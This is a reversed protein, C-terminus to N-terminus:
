SGYQKMYFIIIILKEDNREIERWNINLNEQIWGIKESATQDIKKIKIFENKDLRKRETEQAFVSTSIIITLLILIKNMNKELHIRIRLQM